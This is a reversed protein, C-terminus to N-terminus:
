HQSSPLSSSSSSLAHRHRPHRRRCDPHRRAIAIILAAIVIIIPPPHGRSSENAWPTARTCQSHGGAAPASFAGRLQPRRTRRMQKM